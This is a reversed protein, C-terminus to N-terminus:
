IYLGPNELGRQKSLSFAPTGADISPYLVLDPLRAHSSCDLPPSAGWPGSDPLAISFVTTM